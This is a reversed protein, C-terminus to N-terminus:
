GRRVTRKEGPSATAQEVDSVFAWPYARVLPDKDDYPAGERLAVLQGPLDPHRVAAPTSVRVIAM